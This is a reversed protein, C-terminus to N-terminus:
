PLRTARLTRGRRALVADFTVFAEVEAPARVLHLADAFDVGKAVAALARAVAEGDEVSVNPLGLLGNLAAAVDAAGLGYSADLVWATELLVTAGIWVKEHQFLERARRAQEVDDNVLLRVVVNTDVAIV